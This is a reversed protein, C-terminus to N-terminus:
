FYSNGCSKECFTTRFNDSLQLNQEFEYKQAFIRINKAMQATKLSNLSNECWFFWNKQTFLDIEASKWEIKPFIDM